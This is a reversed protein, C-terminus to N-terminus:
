DIVECSFHISSLRMSTLVGEPGLALTLYQGFQSTRHQRDGVPSDKARDTGLSTSGDDVEAPLAGGITPSGGLKHFTLHLTFIFRSLTLDTRWRRGPFNDVYECGNVFSFSGFLFNRRRNM